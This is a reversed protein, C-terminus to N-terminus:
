RRFLRRFLNRIWEILRQFFNLKKEPQGGEDPKPLPDTTKNVRSIEAGCVTCRVVEDYSGGHETTAAAENEKMPAGPTHEALPIETREVEEGGVTCYTRTYGHTTRNVSM